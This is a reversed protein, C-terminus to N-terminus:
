LHMTHKQASSEKGMSRLPPAGTEEILPLPVEDLKEEYFIPEPELPLNDDLDDELPLNDDLDDELPLNDDLDDEM